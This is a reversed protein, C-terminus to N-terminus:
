SRSRPACSAARRARRGRGRADLVDARRVHPATWIAEAEALLADPVARRGRRGPSRTSSTPDAGGLERGAARRAWLAGRRPAGTRAETAGSGPRSRPRRADPTATAAQGAHAAVHRRREGHRRLAARAFALVGTGLRTHAFPTRRERAVPIGYAELVQAFLDADARARAGRHGGAGHRRAAARAGLRRRARGRRARRGGRAAARRRQAAGRGRSRSSCRASSTTCRAAPARRTTSPAPRSCRRARAALPKLLEVTAASGALAARGPEYSCRSAHGRHRHPPRADRRPRAAAPTLDDFGYLLLPRGGWRARAAEDLAARALGDADLAGSRAGAPPPLRLVARRARGRAAAGHGGRAVGARGRRLAGPAALSRQLEAFLDGLADAFGPSAASAALASCSSTASRRACSGTAPWGASRGRRARGAARAIDRMLRPFTTVDAGFVLGAGALERAYHAADASTPVVLVPDRSLAARLRELVAGAKAANAPGTILTLPM